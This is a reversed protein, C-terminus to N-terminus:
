NESKHATGYSILDSNDLNIQWVVLDKDSYLM